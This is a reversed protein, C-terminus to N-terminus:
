KYFHLRITSLEKLLLSYIFKFLYLRYSRFYLVHRNLPKHQNKFDKELDQSQDYKGCITTMM